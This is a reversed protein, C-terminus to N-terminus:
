SSTACRAPKGSTPPQARAILPARNNRAICYGQDARNIMNCNMLARPDTKRMIPEFTEVASPATLDRVCQDLETGTKGKCEPPLLTSPAQDAALTAGLWVIAFASFAVSRRAAKTM